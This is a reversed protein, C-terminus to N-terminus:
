ITEKPAGVYAIQIYNYDEFIKISVKQGAFLVAWCKRKSTTPTRKCGMDIASYHVYISKKTENDRIMGEGSKNDFWRVTGQRM